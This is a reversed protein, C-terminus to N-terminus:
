EDNNSILNEWFRKKRKKKYSELDDVYIIINNTDNKLLPLHNKQDKLLTTKLSRSKNVSIKNKESLYYKTIIFTFTFFIALFIINKIKNSM